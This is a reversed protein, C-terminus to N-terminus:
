DLFYSRSVARSGAEVVVERQQRSSPVRSAKRERRRPHFSAPFVGSASPHHGPIVVLPPPERSAHPLSTAQAATAHEGRGQERRERRRGRGNEELLAAATPLPLHGDGGDWCAPLPRRSSRTRLPPERAAPLCHRNEDVVHDRGCRWARREGAEIYSRAEERRLHPGQAAGAVAAHRHVPYPPGPQALSGQRLVREHDAEVVAVAALVHLREGDQVAEAPDSHLVQLQRAQRGALATQGRRLHACQDSGAPLEVCLAVAVGVEDAEVRMLEVALDVLCTDQEATAVVDRDVPEGVGGTM